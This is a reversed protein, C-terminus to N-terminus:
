APSINVEQIDRVTITFLLTKGAMPSNFDIFVSSNNPDTANPIIHDVRVPQLNYYLTDNVHPTINYATLVGLPVPMILSANYEGYADAPALTVNKTDGIKMGIVANDFGSIVQGSGVIFSIPGYYKGVVSINAQQAVSANSTDFITGNDYSGTYDVTVNDGTKVVKAAPSTCGAILSIAAVFLIAMIIQSKRVM